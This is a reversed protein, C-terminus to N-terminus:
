VMVKALENVFNTPSVPKPFFANFGAQLADAAVSPSGYATLAVVPISATDPNARIEALAEWGNMQPLALDMIILTPQYEYLSNLCELGDNVVKLQIQHHNLVKSVMQISDYEDEVFLVRWQQKVDDEV